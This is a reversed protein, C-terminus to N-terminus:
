DFKKTWEVFNEITKDIYEITSKDILIGDKDFKDEVKSIYVENGPLNIAGVGMSNLVQRLHNQSRVTGLSGISAGLMMTPKGAIPRSVRSFWDLTNKLVGPISYNYEPTVFIIGDAEKAEKKVDLVIQNPELEIDENYMPMGSIDLIKIDFKEKYRNVIFKAIKMNNSKKSISGVIVRIKM